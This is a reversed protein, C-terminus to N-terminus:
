NRDSFSYTGDWAFNPGTLHSVVASAHLWTFRGTGGSITVVGQGTALNVVVHGFAADNGDGPPDLIVRSELTGNASPARLYIVRSGPRIAELTSSTITCFSGALHTYESCEKEVHFTGTKTSREASPESPRSSLTAPMPQDPATTDSCAAIVASAVIATAMLLTYRIM